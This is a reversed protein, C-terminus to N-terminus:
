HRGTVRTLWFIRVFTHISGKRFNILFTLNVLKRIKKCFPRRFAESLNLSYFLNQFVTKQLILTLCENQGTIEKGIYLTFFFTNCIEQIEVKKM